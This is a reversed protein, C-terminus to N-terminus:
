FFSEIEAKLLNSDNIQNIKERFLSANKLSKSYEHLHKRFVACGHEGYRKIVLDFHNQIIQKKEQKNPEFKGKILDFIWPKGIAARGIMIGDAESIQLIKQFNTEDISGNAIVPIKLTSKIQSIADFNPKKTFGDARTRAHITIFDAGANQIDQAFNPLVISDFGLRLKASTYKKTSNSKIIEVLECLLKPNKLLASGSNQKIIKSVPCGCNLDIGDINPLSNLIQVAKKIIQPESGEIQVFYPSELDHRQLMDLTKKSEYVLANASIMESVTCDCGFQKVIGRFPLDSLGALPALFLPKKSFDM